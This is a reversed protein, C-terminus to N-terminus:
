LEIKSNQYEQSTLIERATDRLEQIMEATADDTSGTAARSQVEINDACVKLLTSVRKLRLM